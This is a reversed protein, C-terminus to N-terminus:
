GTTFLASAAHDCAPGGAVATKPQAAWSRPSSSGGTTMVHRRRAAPRLAPHTPPPTSSCETAWWAQYTAEGLLPVLPATQSTHAPRASFKQDLLARRARCGQRPRCNRCMASQRNRGMSRRPRQRRGPTLFDPTLTAYWVRRRQQAGWATTTWASVARHDPHGTQTM